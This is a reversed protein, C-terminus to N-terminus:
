ALSIVISGEHASSIARRGPFVADNGEIDQPADSHTANEQGICEHEKAQQEVRIAVQFLQRRGLDIAGDLKEFV